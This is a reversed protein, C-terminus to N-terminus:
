KSPSIADVFQQTYFDAKRATDPDLDKVRCAKSLRLWGM